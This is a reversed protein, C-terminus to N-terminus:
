GAGGLRCIKRGRLDVNTELWTAVAARRVAKDRLRVELAGEWGLLIRVRLPRDADIELGRGVVANENAVEVVVGAERRVEKGVGGTTCKTQIGILASRAFENSSGVGM